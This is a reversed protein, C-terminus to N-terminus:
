IEVVEEGGFHVASELVEKFTQCAEKIQAEAARMERIDKCEFHKGKVLDDITIKVNWLRAAIIRVFQRFPGLLWFDSLDVKEKYYLIEKGMKYKKVLALMEPSVQVRVDLAFTVRGMGMMGSKQNRRLLMKMSTDAPRPPRVKAAVAPTEVKAEPEKEAVGVDSQQPTPQAKDPPLAEVKAAEAKARAVRKELEKHKHPLLYDPIPKECHRCTEEVASTIEHCHPCELTGEKLYDPIEKGCHYCLGSVSSNTTKCHPCIINVPM